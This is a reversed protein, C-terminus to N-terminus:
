SATLKVRVSAKHGRKQRCLDNENSIRKVKLFRVFFFFVQGHSSVNKRGLYHSIQSERGLMIPM